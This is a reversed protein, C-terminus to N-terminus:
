LLGTQCQFSQVGTVDLCNSVHTASGSVGITGLIDGQCNLGNWFTCDGGEDSQVIQASAAASVTNPNNGTNMCGEFSGGGTIGADSFEFAEWFQTCGGNIFLNMQLDCGCDRTALEASTHSFVDAQAFRCLVAFLTTEILKM